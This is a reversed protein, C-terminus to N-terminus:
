TATMYESVITSQPPVSSVDIETGKMMPRKRFLADTVAAELVKEGLVALREGGGYESDQDLPAGPFRLSRHTYVDLIIDGNLKPIPPLQTPQTPVSSEM